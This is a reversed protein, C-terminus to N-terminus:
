IDFLCELFVLAVGLLLIPLIDKTYDQQLM